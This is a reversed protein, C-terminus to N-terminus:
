RPRLKRFQNIFVNGTQNAVSTYWDKQANNAAPKYNFAVYEAYPVSNSIYWNGNFAIKKDYKEIELRKEGPQGWGEPRVNQNPANYGVFFSSAMRGTDKPCAKALKGQQLNLTNALAGDLAIRTRDMFDGLDDGSIVVKM